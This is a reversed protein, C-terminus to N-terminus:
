RAQFGSSNMMAAVCNSVVIPPILVSTRIPLESVMARAMRAACVSLGLADFRGAADANGRSAEFTLRNLAILPEALATFDLGSGKAALRLGGLTEAAVTTRTSWDFLENRSDALQQNFGIFASAAAPGAVALGSIAKDLNEANLGASKAATAFKDAEKGAKGLTASAADKVRLVYEVIRSM